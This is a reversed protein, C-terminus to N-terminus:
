TETTEEIINSVCTTFNISNQALQVAGYNDCWLTTPMSMSLGWERLISRIWLAEQTALSMSSYEAETSSLQSYNPNGPCQHIESTFYTALRQSELARTEQGM